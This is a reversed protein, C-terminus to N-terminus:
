SSSNRTRSRRRTSEEAIGSPHVSRDHHHCSLDTHWFRPALQAQEIPDAFRRQAPTSIPSPWDFGPSWRGLFRHHRNSGSRHAMGEGPCSRHPDARNVDEMMVPHHYAAGSSIEARVLYRRDLEVVRSHAQERAQALGWIRRRSLRCGGRWQVQGCPPSLGDTDPYRCATLGEHGPANCEWLRLVPKEDAPMTTPQTTPADNCAVPRIGHQRDCSFGSCSFRRPAQLDKHRPGEGLCNIDQVEVRALCRAVYIGHGVEVDRKFRSGKTRSRRVRDSNTNTPACPLVSYDTKTQGAGEPAAAAVSPRLTSIDCSLDNPGKLTMVPSCAMLSISAEVGFGCSRVNRARQRIGVALCASPMGSVQVMSQGAPVAFQTVKTPM